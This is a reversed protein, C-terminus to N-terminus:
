KVPEQAAIPTQESSRLPNATSAGSIYMEIDKVIRPTQPIEFNLSYYIDNDRKQRPGFEGGYCESYFVTKVQPVLKGRLIDFARAWSGREGEEDNLLEFSGIQFHEVTGSGLGTFFQEVAAQTVGASLIFIDRICPWEVDALVASLNYHGERGRGDNLGFARTYLRVRELDRSSVLAALYENLHRSEDPGLHSTRIPLNHLDNGFSVRRLSQCAARVKSWLLSNHGPGPCVLTQDRKCPFLGVNLDRLVVGAEHIAIPLESLIRATALHLDDANEIEDWSLPSAVFRSLLTKDLLLEPDSYYETFVSDEDSFGLATANPMRAMCSALTRAFSQSELLERQKRHNQCFTEYGESLIRQYEDKAKVPFRDSNRAWNVYKDWSERITWGSSMAEQYMAVRQATRAKEDEDKEDDSGDGPLLIGELHWDCSDGVENLKIERFEKFQTLDNALQEPFCQVGVCIARVGSAIGPSHSLNVANDLSARNVDVRLIPCLLPSALNNFGRCVLRVSQITKRKESRVGRRWSRLNQWEVEGRELAPDAFYDLIDRLLENPLDLITLLRLSPRSLDIAQNRLADPISDPEATNIEM